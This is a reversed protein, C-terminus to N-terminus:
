ETNSGSKVDPNMKEGPDWIVSEYKEDEFEIVIINDVDRSTKNIKDEKSYVFVFRHKSKRKDFLEESGSLNWDGKSGFVLVTNDPLDDLKKSGVNKNLAFNCVARSSYLTFAGSEFSEDYELLLDCWKNTEPLYGDHDEVYERMVRSIWLGHSTKSKKIRIVTGMMVFGISFIMPLFLLILLYGCIKAKISKYYRHVFFIIGLLFVGLSTWGCILVFVEYELCCWLLLKFFHMPGFYLAPFLVIFMLFPNFSKKVDNM